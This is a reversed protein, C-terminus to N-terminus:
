NESLSLSVKQGTRLSSGGVTVLTDGIDLGSIIMVFGQNPQSIQVIQKTARDGNIEYCTIKEGDNKMADIPAIMANTFVNTIIKATAAMGPKIDLDKNPLSIEVPYLRTANEAAFGIAHVKGAFIRNGLSAAIINVDQGQRIKTIESESVGITLKVPNTQVVEVVPTGPFVNQGIVAMKASIRGNFPMRIKTEDFARKALGAGAEAAKLGVEANRWALEITEFINDSLDGKDYLSKQREYDRKSKDAAIGAAELAAEAQKWQLEAVKDDFKVIVDGASLYQGIEAEWSVVRGGTESSLMTRNWGELIGTAQVIEKFVAPELRIGQVPIVKELGTTDATLAQTELKASTDRSSIIAIILLIILTGAILTIRIKKKM